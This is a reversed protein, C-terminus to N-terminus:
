HRKFMVAVYILVVGCGVAGGGVPVPAIRGHRPVSDTGIRCDCDGFSGVSCDSKGTEAERKRFDERNCTTEAGGFVKCAINGLGRKCVKVRSM